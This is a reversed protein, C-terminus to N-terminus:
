FVERFIVNIKLNLIKARLNSYCLKSKSSFKVKEKYIYNTTM